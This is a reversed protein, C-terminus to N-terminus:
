VVESSWALRATGQFLQGTIGRDRTLLWLASEASTRPDGPADPAMDTRVWGPSLANVAVKGRLENATALTLAHLAAKSVGYAGRTGTSLVGSTSGVNVIRPDPSKLLVPLLRKTCLYPGLLNIRMTDDFTEDPQTTLSEEGAPFVGANNVLIDLSGWSDNVWEAVRDNDRALSADAQICSLDPLLAKAEELRGSNRGTALVRAGSELCIKCLQLGIGRSGGTVVVSKGELLVTGGITM